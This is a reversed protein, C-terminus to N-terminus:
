KQMLLALPHIHRRELLHHRELDVVGTLLNSPTGGDYECPGEWLQGWAHNLTFGAVELTQLLEWPHFEHFHYPSTNETAEAGPTTIFLYRKTLRYLQRIFRGYEVVHEIVDNCVVIDYTGKVDSIDCKFDAPCGPAPEHTFVKADPLHKQTQSLGCGVDLVTKRKSLHRIHVLWGHQEDQRGEVGSQASLDTFKPKFIM